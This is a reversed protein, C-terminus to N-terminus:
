FPNGVSFYLQVRDDDLVPNLGYGVDVRVPGVPTILRLGGGVGTHFGSSFLDNVESTVTGTDVFIAGGLRNWIPFRWEANFILLGDGGLADGKANLPGVRNKEYGRITTAGGALFRDQAPLEASDGFPTALGVRASLALVTPPLLSFFWQSEFRSKVFSRDSGFFTGATEFSAFHLSGSQPDVPDNRRDITLAPTLSAVIETGETIDDAALSADVDFRRVWDLRYTIDASLGQIREEFISKRIGTRFGIRDIEYGVNQEAKREWLLGVSGQWPTGFVYPDQLALDSLFGRQNAQQRFRFSRRTGFLNDHGIEVFGGAGIDTNYGAGFDLRWPKGEKIRVEIDAISPNRSRRVSEVEVQDFQPFAVLKRQTEILSERDLPEGTEFPLERRVTDERTLLLGQLLVRGVRTQPGENIRYTVNIRDEERKPEVRIRVDLYGKKSYLKLIRRRGDQAKQIAWPDGAKFPVTKRLEEASLVKEGHFTIEGVALKPGEVIPIAITVRSRDESFSLQPPGAKAQSYGQSQLFGEIARVDADLFQQRFLGRDLLRPPNTSILKSLRKQTFHQNGRFTVSEVKVQPGEEISFRIRRDATSNGSGVGLSGTIKAFHYGNDRYFTALQRANAEVETEDVTGSAAFTLQQRLVSDKLGENGAFEVVYKPGERVDLELDVRHNARDVVPTALSVKSELFGEDGLKERVAELGDRSARAMYPRGIRQGFPGTFFELPILRRKGSFAKALVEVSVREAGRIRVDGVVYQHGAELVFTVAQGNTKPDKEKEIEIAADFFGRNKYLALLAERAKDLRKEDAPGGLPLDAVSALEAEDLGPDGEWHVEEVYPRISLHYRLLGDRRTVRVREFIGLAWLRNLSARIETATQVGSEGSEGTIAALVRREPVEYESVLEIKNNRAM